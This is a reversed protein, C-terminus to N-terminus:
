SDYEDRSLFNNCIKHFYPLIILSGNEKICKRYFDFETLLDANICSISLNYPEIDTFTLYANSNEWYSSDKYSDRKKEVESRTSVSLGFVKSYSSNSIKSMNM